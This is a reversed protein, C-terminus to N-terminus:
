PGLSAVPASLSSMHGFYPAIELSARGLVVSATLSYGIDFRCRFISAQKPM